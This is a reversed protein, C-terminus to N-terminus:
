KKETNSQKEYEALKVELEQIRQNALVLCALTLNKEDNVKRFDNSLNQYALEWENM